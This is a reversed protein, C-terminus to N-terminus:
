SAGAAVAEKGVLYKVLEILRDPSGASAIHLFKAATALGHVEHLRAVEEITPAAARALGTAGDFFAFEGKDNWV